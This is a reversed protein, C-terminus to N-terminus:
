SLNNRKGVTLHIKKNKKLFSFIKKFVFYLITLYIITLGIDLLFTIFQNNEQNFLPLNDILMIIPYIFIYVIPMFIYFLINEPIFKELWDFIFPGGILSYMSAKLFFLILFVVSLVILSRNSKNNKKINKM